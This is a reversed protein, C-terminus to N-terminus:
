HFIGEMLQSFRKFYKAAIWNINWLHSTSLLQSMLEVLVEAVSKLLVFWSFLFSDSQFKKVFCSKVKKKVFKIAILLAMYRSLEDM